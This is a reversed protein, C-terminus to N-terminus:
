FTPQSPQNKTPRNVRPRRVFTKFCFDLLAWIFAENALSEQTAETEKSSTM